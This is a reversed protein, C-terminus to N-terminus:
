GPTNTDAPDYYWRSFTHWNTDTVQFRGDHNVADLLHLKRRFYGPKSNIGSVDFHRGTSSSYDKCRITELFSYAYYINGHGQHRYANNHTVSLYFSDCVTKASDFFVEYLPIYDYFTGYGYRTVQNIIQYRPQMSSTWQGKALLLMEDNTSDVEYLCFYEPQMAKILVSDPKQDPGWRFFAYGLSAAIGIVRLATDSYYHIAFEPQCEDDFPMIDPSWSVQTGVNNYLAYEDWWPNHGYYYTPERDGLGLTDVQASACMAMVCFVLFFSVRKM